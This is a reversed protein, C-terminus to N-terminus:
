LQRLLTKWTGKTLFSDTVQEELALFRRYPLSFSLLDKDLHLRASPDTLGVYCTDERAEQACLAYRIAQTCGAGFLLKVNELSARDYSALTALASLQHPNVLFVVALPEEGPQLQDLPRFVLCAPPETPPLLHFSTEMLCPAEKYGLGPRGGDGTTLFGALGEPAQPVLGLGFRGGPCGVSDATLAAAQGQAAAALLPIICGCPRPAMGEPPRQAKLAAVPQTALGIAQRLKSHM